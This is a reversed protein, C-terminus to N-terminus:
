NPKEPPDTPLRAVARAEVEYVVSSGSASRWRRRRLAGDVQVLDDLRWGRVVAQVQPSFSVCTVTDTKQVSPQERSCRPVELRWTVLRQGGSLKRLAPESTIRGRLEVRNAPRTESVDSRTAAPPAPRPRPRAGVATEADFPHAM